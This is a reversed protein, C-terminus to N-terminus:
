LMPAVISWEPLPIPTNPDDTDVDVGDPLICNGNSDFSSSGFDFDGDWIDLTDIVEPVIFCFEYIGDYLTPNM